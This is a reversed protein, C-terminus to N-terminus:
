PNEAVFRIAEAEQIWGKQDSDIRDFLETVQEQTLTEIRHSAVANEVEKRDVRGDKNTDLLAFAFRAAQADDVKSNVWLLGSVFEAYDLVGDGDQDACINYSLLCLLYWESSMTTGSCM